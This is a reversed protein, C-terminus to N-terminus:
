CERLILFTSARAAEMVIRAGWVPKICAPITCAVAQVVQYRASTSLGVGAQPRAAHSSRDEDDGGIGGDFLLATGRPEQSHNNVQESRALCLCRRGSRGVRLECSAARRQAM